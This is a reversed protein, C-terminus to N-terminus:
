DESTELKLQEISKFSTLLLCVSNLAQKITEQDIEPSNMGTNVLDALESIKKYRAQITNNSEESLLNEGYLQKSSNMIMKAAFSFGGVAVKRSQDKPIALIEGALISQKRASLFKLIDPIKEAWDTKPEGLKGIMSLIDEGTEGVMLPLFPFVWTDLLWGISKYGQTTKAIYDQPKHEVNGSAHLIALSTARGCFQVNNKVIDVIYAIIPAATDTPMNKLRYQGAKYIGLEAGYGIFEWNEISRVMPTSMHLLRLDDVTKLGILMEAKPKDQSADLAAGIEKCYKLTASEIAKRASTFTGDCRNLSDSIREVLADSFVGDDTACVVVAKIDDSAIPLEVLKEVSRHVSGVAELTDSCLVIGDPCLMGACITMRRKRERRQLVIKWFPEPAIM